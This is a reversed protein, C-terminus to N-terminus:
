NVPGLYQDVWELEEKILENTPARTSPTYYLAAVWDSGPELMM